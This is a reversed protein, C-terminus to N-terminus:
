TRPKRLRFYKTKTFRNSSTSVRVKVADGILINPPYHEHLFIKYGGTDVEIIFSLSDDSQQPTIESVVGNVVRHSWEGAYDSLYVFGSVITFIILFCM